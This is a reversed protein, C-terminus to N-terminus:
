RYRQPPPPLSIGSTREEPTRPVLVPGETYWYGGAERVLTLEMGAHAQGAAMRVRFARDRASAADSGIVEVQFDVGEFRVASPRGRLARVDVALCPQLPLPWGAERCLETECAGIARRPFTTGHHRSLVVVLAYQEPLRAVLFGRRRAAVAMFAIDPWKSRWRDLEVLWQAAALRIDFPELDGWYDVTEGEFDVVAAALGGPLRALLRALIPAFASAPMDRVPRELPARM